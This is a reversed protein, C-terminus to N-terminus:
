QRNERFNINIMVNILVFFHVEGAIVTMASNIDVISLLAQALFFYQFVQCHFKIVHIYMHKKRNILIFVCFM